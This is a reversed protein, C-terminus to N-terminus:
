VYIYICIVMNIVIYGVILPPFQAYHSQNSHCSWKLNYRWSIFNFANSKVWHCSELNRWTAIFKNCSPTVMNFPSNEVVSSPTYVKLHSSPAQLRQYTSSSEIPCGLKTQGPIVFSSQPVAVKNVGSFVWLWTWISRWRGLRVNKPAWYNNETKKQRSHEPDVFFSFRVLQGHDLCSRM